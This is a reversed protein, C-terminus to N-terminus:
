LAARALRADEESEHELTALEASIREVYAQDRLLALNASVSSSAGRMAAMLLEVAVTVDSAAARTCNAAVIRSAGLAQRTRRLTDLPVETAQLMAAAIADRRRVQEAETTRTSRLAAVVNAYAECDADILRSLENRMAHLRVATSALESAEDSTGSRTKPLSAAMMLLSAGVAGSLASASGGAPYPQNSAFADLLGSLSISTLQTM